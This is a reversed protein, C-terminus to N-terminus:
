TKKHIFRERNLSFYIGIFYSYIGYFNPVLGPGTPHAPHAVTCPRSFYLAELYKYIYM